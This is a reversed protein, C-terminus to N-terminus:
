FEAFRKDNLFEYDTLTRLFVIIAEKEKNQLDIGLSGDPKKLREDVEGGNEVMGESYFDLVAELTGFRGDHMYPFSMEINRLSPVRFKYFDAEYGSVRQRGQEEIHKPNYPIGNNRYSQDSFLDTSHCSACKETFAILGEEELSTFSAGDEQRMVKDYKSNSSVMMVMFQSLAKLMRESNIEATGFANEFLKAYEPMSELKDLVSPITENMEVEATIPIIPQLDLHIAAGDWTFEDFYALNQIPQTNRFGELGNEGHSITHGHHTFASAQEHCFGCSIIGSSSLNGEYFLKKGLEFGADTPTNAKLDYKIEPFNSPQDVELFFPGAIYAENGDNSCSWLVFGFVIILITKKM